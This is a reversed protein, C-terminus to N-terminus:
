NRPAAPANTPKAIQQPVSVCKSEAPTFAVDNERLFKRLEDADISQNYTQFNRIGDGDFSFWSNVGVVCGGEDILPGGSNGHGIQATHIITGIGAPKQSQHSTVIGTTFNAEPLSEPGNRQETSIVAGPFGAATVSQLREPVMGVKLSQSGSHPEVELVALDQTGRSAGQGRAVVKAPFFGGLAKNGIKVVDSQQVVHRNTVVFRDSLFFGSGSANGNVVIVTADDLLTAVSTQETGRGDHAPVDIKAREPAVPLLKQFDYAGAPNTVGPVMQCVNKSAFTLQELREKLAMNTARQGEELDSKTDPGIAQPYRLIDFVKLSILVALAALCAVMPALWERGIRRASSLAVDPQTEITTGPPVSTGGELGAMASRAALSDKRVHFEALKPLFAQAEENNFPPLPMRPLYPEAARRFVAERAEDSNSTSAPVMGWNKLVPQGAVSVLDSPSNVYLWSALTPGIKPDSFLISLAQLRDRLLKGVVRLAAPDLQTFPFPTGEHSCFWTVNQIKTTRNYGRVPEAFVSAVEEGCRSRVVEIVTAYADISEDAGVRALTSQDLDTTGLLYQQNM